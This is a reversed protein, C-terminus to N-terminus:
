ASCKHQARCSCTNMSSCLLRSAPLEALGDAVPSLKLGAECAEVVPLRARHVEGAARANPDGSSRWNRSDRSSCQASMLLGTFGGSRLRLHPAPQQEFSLTHYLSPPSSATILHRGPVSFLMSSNSAQTWLWWAPQEALGEM